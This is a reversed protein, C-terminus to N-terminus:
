HSNNFPRHVVGNIGSAARSVPSTLPSKWPHKAKKRKEEVIEVVETLLYAKLISSQWDEASQLAVDGRAKWTFAVCLDLNDNSSFLPAGIVSATFLM